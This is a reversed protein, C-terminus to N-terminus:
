ILKDDVDREEGYINQKEKIKNVLTILIIFLCAISVGLGINIYLYLNYNKNGKNKEKIDKKEKSDNNEIENDIKNVKGLQSAEDKKVCFDDIQEITWAYKEITDIFVDFTVNIILKDDFYYCVHYDSYTLKEDPKKDKYRIVEAALQGAFSPLDYLEISLNFYKIIFLLQPTMSDDHGLIMVMKPQSYDAANEDIITGNIDPDVRNKIFIIMDRLLSSGEFLIAENNDDGYMEDRCNIASIKACKEIMFEVNIQTINFFNTMKRDAYYGCEISWCLHSIWDFDYPTEVDKFYRSVNEGFIANFDNTLNAITEKEKYNKKKIGEHAM